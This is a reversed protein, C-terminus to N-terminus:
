PSPEDDLWPTKTLALRSSGGDVLDPIEVKGEGDSILEMETGDPVIVKIATDSLVEGTELELTFRVWHKTPVREEAEKKEEEDPLAAPQIRFPPKKSQFVWYRPVWRGVENELFQELTGHYGDLWIAHKLRRGITERNRITARLLKKAEQGDLRRMPGNLTIVPHASNRKLCCERGEHDRFFFEHM